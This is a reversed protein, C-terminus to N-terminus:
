KTQENHAALILSHMVEPTIPEAGEATVRRALETYHGRYAEPTLRDLDRVIAAFTDNSNM